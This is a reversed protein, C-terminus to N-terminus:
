RMQNVRMSVQFGVAGEGRGLVDEGRARVMGEDGEEEEQSSVLGLFWFGLVLSCCPHQGEGM